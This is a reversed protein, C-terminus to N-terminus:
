PSQLAWSAVRYLRVGQSNWVETLEPYPLAPKGAMLQEAEGMVVWTIRAYQLWHYRESQTMGGQYFRTIEAMRNAFNPTFPNHGAYPTVRTHGMLVNVSRYSGIVGEGTQGVSALYASLQGDAQSMFASKGIYRADMRKNLIFGMDGLAVLLTVLGVVWGRKKWRKSWQQAGWVGLLVIAIWVGRIMMGRYPVGPFYFLGWQVGLWISVLWHKKYQKLGYVAWLGVAGWGLLWYWPSFVYTGQTRLGETMSSTMLSKGILFYYFLGTGAVVGLWRGLFSWHSANLRVLAYIGAILGLPVLTQPHNVAIGMVAIGIVGLWRTQLSNFYIYSGGLFLMLSIMTVAEHPSRLASWLNFIPVGIDPLIWKPFVWWGIGGAMFLWYWGILRWRIDSIFLGLFWYATLMLVIGTMMGALHFMLVPDHTLPTAVMGIFTYVPYLVATETGRSDAGNTIAWTGQEMGMRIVRFYLSLDIQDVWSAQGIFWQGSPAHNSWWWDPYHVWFTMIVLLFLIAVRRM